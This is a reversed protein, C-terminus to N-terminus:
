TRFRDTASVLEHLARLTFPKQLCDNDIADVFDIQNM